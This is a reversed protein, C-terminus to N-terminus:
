GRYLMAGVCSCKTSIESYSRRLIRGARQPSTFLPAFSLERAACHMLVMASVTSDSGDNRSANRWRRQM